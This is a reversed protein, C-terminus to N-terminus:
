LPFPTAYLASFFFSCCCHVYQAQQVTWRALPLSTLISEGEFRPFGM